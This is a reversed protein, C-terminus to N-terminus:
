LQNPVPSTVQLHFSAGRKVDPVGLKADLKLGMDRTVRDVRGQSIGLRSADV